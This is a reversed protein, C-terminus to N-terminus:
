EYFELWWYFVGKHQSTECVQLWIHNLVIHALYFLDSMFLYVRSHMKKLSHM